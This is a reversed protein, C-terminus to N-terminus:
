WNDKIEVLTNILDQLDSKSNIQCCYYSEGAINLQKNIGDTKIWLYPSGQSTDEELIKENTIDIKTKIM